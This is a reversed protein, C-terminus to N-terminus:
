ELTLLTMSQQDKVFIRNGAVIPHAYTPTDAVKIKAVEAYQKADPKFVILESHHLHAEWDRRKLRGRAM